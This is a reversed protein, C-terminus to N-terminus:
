DELNKIAQVMPDADIIQKLTEEFSSQPFGQWRIVGDTSIVVVHPIGTIKMKKYITQNKDYLHAYSEKHSRIFKKVDKLEDDQGAIALITIEDKYETQLRDLTPMLKRCPGCWTAWFDLVIIKGDTNTDSKKTLWKENGLPVPLQQGQYDMAYLNGSNVSPWPANAYEGSSIEPLGPVKPEPIELGQAELQANVIATPVDEGLLGQLAPRISRNSIDAYRLQGARDIIYVDPTNDPHMAAAFVGDTDKAIQVKGGGTALFEAQMADWGTEAHVALVVFGQEGLNRQFRALMSLMMQSQAHDGAITAIMVVKGEISEATMPNGHSWDSLSALAAMPMPSAELEDLVERNANGDERVIKPGMAILGGALLCAGAATLTRLHIKM